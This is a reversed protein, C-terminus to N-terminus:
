FDGQLPIGQFGLAFSYQVVNDTNESIALNSIVAPGKKFRGRPSYHEAWIEMGRSWSDELFAFCVDRQDVWGKVQLSYDLMVPRQENGLGSAQSRIPILNTQGPAELGQFGGLLLSAIFATSATATAVAVPAALIAITNSTTAANAVAAPAALIPVTTAVTGVVTETAVTLAAAGFYLVCGKPLTTAAAATLSAVVAGLTIAAAATVVPVMWKAENTTIANVGFPIATKSDVLVPAATTFSATTAAAAIAASTTLVTNVPTRVNAALSAIRLEGNAALISGSPHKDKVPM